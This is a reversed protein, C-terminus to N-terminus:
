TWPEDASPGYVSPVKAEAARLYVSFQGRHHIMDFFLMTALQLKPIDGLTHPAVYFQATEELEDESMAAIIKNTKEYEEEYITIIQAFTLPMAQALDTEEGTLLKQVLREETVFVWALARATKSKSGPKLEAKEQPFSRLVNLTVPLERIRNDLIFQKM